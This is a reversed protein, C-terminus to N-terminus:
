AGGGVNKRLVGARQCSRNNFSVYLDITNGHNMLSTAFGMNRGGAKGAPAILQAEGLDLISANGNDFAVWRSSGEGDRSAGNHLKMPRDADDLSVPSPSLHWISFGDPRAGFGHKTSRWRDLREGVKAYGIRSVESRAFMFGMTWHGNPAIAVEVVKVDKEDEFSTHAVGHKTPWHIDLGSTWRLQDRGEADIGTYSVAPEDCNKVLTPDGHGKAHPGKPHPALMPADKRISPRGMAAPGMGSAGSRSENDNSDPHEVIHLLRLRGDEWSWVFPRM